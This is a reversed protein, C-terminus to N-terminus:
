AIPVFWLSLIAMAMMVNTHYIAHGQSDTTDFTVFQRYGLRDTFQELLPIDCRKSLAAYIIRNKRDIVMAGTGELIGASGDTQGVELRERITCGAEGLISEIHSEQRELRRSESRM